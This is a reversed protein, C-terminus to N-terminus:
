PSLPTLSASPATPPAGSHFTFPVIVTAPMGDLPRSFTATKVGGAMCALCEDDLNDHTRATAATVRGDADVDIAFTVTGTPTPKRGLQAAFCARLSPRIANVTRAADPISPPLGAGAEATPGAEATSAGGLGADGAQAVPPASACGNCGGSCASVSPGALALGIALVSRRLGPM